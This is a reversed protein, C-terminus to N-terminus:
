RPRLQAAQGLLRRPVAGGPITYPLVQGHMPNHTVVNEECPYEFHSSLAALRHLSTTGSLTRTGLADRWAIVHARTVTRFEGPRGIDTFRMFDEVANEDARHTSPNGLNAFWGIEPPVAALRQFSNYAWYPGSAGAPVRWPGPRYTVIGGGFEVWAAAIFARQTIRRGRGGLGAHRCLFAL